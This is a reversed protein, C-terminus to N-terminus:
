AAHFLTFRVPENTKDNSFVVRTIIFSFTTVLLSRAHQEDGFRSVLDLM